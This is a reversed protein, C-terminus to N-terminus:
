KAAAQVERPLRNGFGLKACKIAVRRDLKEDVAEYVVGMGGFAVERVIRFRGAVRTGTEFPHDLIESLPLPELLFKGMREEWEVRSLVEAYLLSDGCVSRLFQEREQPPRDLASEVLGMVLEDDEYPGPM